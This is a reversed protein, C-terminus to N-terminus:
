TGLFNGDNLAFRSAAELIWTFREDAWFARINEPTPPFPKGDLTTFSWDVTIACLLDIEDEKTEEETPRVDRAQRTIRRDQVVRLAARQAQSNRGKLTITVPKKEDDYFLGGTAPNIIKMPVGAESKTKTGLQSLEFGM